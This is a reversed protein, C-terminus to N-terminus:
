STIRSSHASNKTSFSGRSIALLGLMALALTTPEPLVKLEGGAEGAGSATFGTIDTGNDDLSASDVQTSFSVLISDASDTIELGVPLSQTVVSAISAGLAFQAEIVGAIDVYTVRVEDLILNLSSGGGFVFDMTGGAASTVTEGLKSIGSVGPISLDVTLGNTLSQVSSGDVLFNVFDLPDPDGLGPDNDVIELGNYKIDLGTFQISITSAALPAACLIGSVLALSLARKHFVWRHNSILKITKLM